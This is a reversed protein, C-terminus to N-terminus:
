GKYLRSTCWYDKIRRILKDAVQFTGRDGLEGLLNLVSTQVGFTTKAVFIFKSEKSNEYKLM